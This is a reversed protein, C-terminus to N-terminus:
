NIVELAALEAELKKSHAPRKECRVVLVVIGVQQLASLAPSVARHM